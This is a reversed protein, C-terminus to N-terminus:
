RWVQWWRRGEGTSGNSGNSKRDNPRVGSGQTRDMKRNMKRDMYRRTLVAAIRDYHAWDDRVSYVDGAIPADALFVGRFEDLYGPYYGRTFAEGEPSLDESTIAGGCTAILFEVPTLERYRLRLLPGEHAQQFAESCLHLNACWALYMGMPLAAREISGAEPLHHDLDDVVM